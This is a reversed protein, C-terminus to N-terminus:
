ALDITACGAEKGRATESCDNIGSTERRQLQLSLSGVKDRVLQDLAVAGDRFGDDRNDKLTLVDVSGEVDLAKGEVLDQGLQKFLQKFAPRDTLLTVHSSVYTDIPSKISRPPISAIISAGITSQVKILDLEDDLEPRTLMVLVLM